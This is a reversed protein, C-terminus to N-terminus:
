KGSRGAFAAKKGEVRLEEKTESSLAGRKFVGGRASLLITKKWWQGDHLGKGVDVQADTEGAPCRRNQPTDKETPYDASKWRGRRPGKLANM